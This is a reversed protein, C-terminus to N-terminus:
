RDMSQPYDSYYNRNQSSFSGDPNLTIVTCGRQNDKQDIEWYALYDISMGYTLQVGKYRIAFNNLHDHGCFVAQLGMKSATDFFTDTGVGCFVGYAVEGHREKMLEEEMLGYVYEVDATNQYDAEVYTRYATRYERLPIHIFAMNDVTDGGGLPRNYEVIKQMEQAYWDVQNQHLNDFKHMLGFVDPSMYSHTDLMVLAQSVLGSSQKVKIVTNGYGFDEDIYPGQQFLCYRYGANKYDDCLQQRSFLGYAEYDHNGFTFTWYIGLSEMLEALLRHGNINNFSGSSFVFPYCVDGTVVVLDPKEQTLMTAVANLAWTDEQKSAFGAGLHVDTLQVVKLPRDTTFTWYGDTDLTPTLQHEYEVREYSEAVALLDQVVFTNAVGLAGIATVILAVLLLLVLLFTGFRHLAKSNAPNSKTRSM